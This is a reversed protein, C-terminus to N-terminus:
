QGRILMQVVAQCNKVLNAIDMQDANEVHLGAIVVVPQNFAKALEEAAPKAVEDDKHGLLPLVSTNCSLRGSGTLSPRPQSFAVAGVHPKHGGYLQAVIGAGTMTATLEVRHLGSGASFILQTM